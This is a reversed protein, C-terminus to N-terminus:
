RSALIPKVGPSSACTPSSYSRFSDSPEECLTIRSSSRVVVLRGPDEIDPAGAAQEGLQQAVPTMVDGSDVRELEGVDLLPDVLEELGVELLADGLLGAGAEVEGDGGVDELM